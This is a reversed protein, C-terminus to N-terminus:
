TRLRATSSMFIASADGREVAFEQVLEGRGMEGECSGNHVPWAMGVAYGNGAHLM